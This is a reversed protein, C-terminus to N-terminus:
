ELGGYLWKEEALRFLYDPGFFELIFDIEEEKEKLAKQLKKRKRQLRKIQKEFENAPVAVLNDSVNLEHAKLEIDQVDSKEFDKNEIHSLAHQYAKLQGDQSLKANILVTYTDDENHVVMEKGPASFNVLFINVDPTM